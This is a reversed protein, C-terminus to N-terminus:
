AWSAEAGSTAARSRIEMLSGSIAAPDLELVPPSPREREVEESHENERRKHL